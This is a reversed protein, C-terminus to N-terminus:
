LRTLEKQLEPTLVGRPASSRLSDGEVSLRVDLARLRALLEAAQTV